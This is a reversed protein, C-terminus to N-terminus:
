GLKGSLSFFDDHLRKGGEESECDVDEENGSVELDVSGLPACVGEVCWIRLVEVWTGIGERGGFM